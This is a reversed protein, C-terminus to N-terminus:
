YFISYNDHYLNDNVFRRDYSIYSFRGLLDDILDNNVDKFIHQVTYRRNLTYVQDDAHDTDVASLSYIICPFKLSVNSPPQFYVNSSGLVAKLENHLEVRSGM